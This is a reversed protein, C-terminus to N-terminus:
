KKLAQALDWVDLSGIGTVNDYGVYASYEGNSGTTIDHFFAAQLKGYGHARWFEFITKGALGSRGGIIENIEALAAGFLPSALSTGGVPNWNNKWSGEYFFATGTSPNADFAVDPVNRGSQTRNVVGHQWLPTGFIASIGGGSGSWGYEAVYAGRSNTVLSTGGVAVFHPSSAPADVIGSGSGSPKCDSGTDGSAAHFTIGLAAGQKAVHDWALTSATDINECLGFSSNVSDAKNQSVIANYADTIGGNGIRVFSPLEYVYLTVGPANAAMAEVDLTAEVTGGASASGSAGGDVSLRITRGTRKIHFYKLYSAVDSDLFDADIVIAATRGKGNYTQVATAHTSPFNYSREFALPGYGQIGAPGVPGYIGPEANAPELVGTHRGMPAAQIDTHVTALDNLGNVAFVIGSLEAPALAPRVNTYRIGYGPQEVRDIQTGFYREAALATGEADIVTRNAFLHTIRFGARQLSAAVRAYEVATPGFAAAFQESTLWHRYYPSSPDNQLAILEELQDDHHYQLTVAISLRTAPPETGLDRFAIFPVKAVSPTEVVPAAIIGAPAPAPPLVLMGLAVALSSWMFRKM